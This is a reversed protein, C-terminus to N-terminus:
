KSQYLDLVAGTEADVLFEYHQEMSTLGGKFVNYNLNNLTATEKITYIWSGDIKEPFKQKVQKLALEPSIPRASVQKTIIVGACFGLAAGFITSTKM